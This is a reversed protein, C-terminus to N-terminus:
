VKQAAVAKYFNIYDVMCSFESNYVMRQVNLLNEQQQDLDLKAIIGEDYKLQTLKFDEQELAQIEKQKALKDRDMNVSVLTDNVEQMSTLNVKEYNKLSREYAIKKAKLNATLSFGQFLPQILGGGFGWIMNSTSFLSEFYKNNFFLLGGLLIKPCMEKRAIRVDIGAKELMKEAKLYDPRKMIVESSVTEPINGSFAFNRYDTRKYEEINNPSDGVLVALQHLLKTREKKLDVLETTGVIYSKNAKVIDSTSVIGENNSIQMIDAIEKRLAVIEEQLDILADLKIINVYVTGVASAIAIYAAQEDLISSEYLKRVATTKNHNKGWIDLEYSAIIPVGFNGSTQGFAHGYGPLFGASLNPLENSRQMVVNQYYEDIALTAMKLDKNNEVAKIIYDNLYEDNFQAWWDLNIYEYKNKVPKVKETKIYYKRGKLSGVTQETGGNLVTNNKKAALAINSSMFSIIIALSLLKKMIEEYVVQNKIGHIIGYIHQM